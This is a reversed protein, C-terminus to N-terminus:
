ENLRVFRKETTNIQLTSNLAFHNTIITFSDDDFYQSLKNFAWVLTRMELKIFWYRSEVKTLYKFFFLISREEDNLEIQHMIVDYERKKSENVYLAFLFAFNFFMLTLTKCFKKKLIEWAIVCKISSHLTKHTKDKILKKNKSSIRTKFISRIRKRFLTKKM